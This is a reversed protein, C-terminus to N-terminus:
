LQILKLKLLFNIKQKISKLIGSTLWPTPKNKYCTSQFLFFNYYIRM